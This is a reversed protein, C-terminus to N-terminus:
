QFYIEPPNTVQMTIHVMSYKVAKQIPTIINSRIIMTIKIDIALLYM